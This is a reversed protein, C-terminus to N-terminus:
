RPAVAEIPHTASRELLANLQELCSTGSALVTRDRAADTAFQGALEDGVDMSLDYYERKYGFSGAMGCCEVESTVVDHGLRELVAVTYPELDLTRQQCHAHYAVPDTGTRLADADAGNELLGYVYEMVEYSNTSLREHAAEPLLKEYERRFMALDSPEVVVVDRGADLHEALAAFTRSAQRDATSVM